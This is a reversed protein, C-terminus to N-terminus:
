FIKHNIINLTLNIKLHFNYHNKPINLLYGFTPIYISVSKGQRKKKITFSFWQVYLAKYPSLLFTHYKFNINLLNLFSYPSKSHFSVSNNILLINIFLFQSTKNILLSNYSM